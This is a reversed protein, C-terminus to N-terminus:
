ITQGTRHAAARHREPLEEARRAASGSLCAKSFAALQDTMLSDAREDAAQVAMELAAYSLGSDATTADRVLEIVRGWEDRTARAGRGLAVQSTACASSAPSATATATTVAEARELLTQAFGAVCIATDASIQSRDKALEDRCVGADAAIEIETDVYATLADLPPDARDHRTSGCGAALM